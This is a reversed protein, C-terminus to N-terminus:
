VTELGYEGWSDPQIDSTNMSTYGIWRMFANSYTMFYCGLYQLKPIDKAVLFVETSRNTDFHAGMERYRFGTTPRIEPEIHSGQTRYKGIEVTIPQTTRYVAINLDSEYEICMMESLFPHNLALYVGTKRTESCYRAEPEPEVTLAARYLMSDKPITFTEM